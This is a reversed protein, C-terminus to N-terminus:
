PNLIANRLYYFISSTLDGWGAGSGPNTIPPPGISTNPFNESLCFLLFFSPFFLDDANKPHREVEFNESLCFSFFFSFFWCLKKTKPQSRGPGDGPDARVGDFLYIPWISGCFHRLGQNDWSKVLSSRSSHHGFSHPGIPRRQFQFCM